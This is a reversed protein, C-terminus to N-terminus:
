QARAQGRPEISQTWFASQCRREQQEANTVPNSVDPITLASNHCDIQPSLMAEAKDSSAVVIPGLSAISCYRM